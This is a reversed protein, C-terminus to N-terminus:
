PSSYVSDGEPKGPDGPMVRTGGTGCRAVDLSKAGPAKESQEPTSVSAAYTATHHVCFTCSACVRRAWRDRGVESKTDVSM